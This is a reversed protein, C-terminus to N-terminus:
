LFFILRRSMQAIVPSVQVVTQCKRFHPFNGSGSSGVTRGSAHDRESNLRHSLFHDFPLCATFWHNCFAWAAGLHDFDTAALAAALVDYALWPARHDIGQDAGHEFFSSRNLRGHPDAERAPM